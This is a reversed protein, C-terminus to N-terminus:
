FIPLTFTCLNLSLSSTDAFSKSTRHTRIDLRKLLHMRRKQECRKERWGLVKQVNSYGEPHFQWDIRTWSRNSKKVLDPLRNHQSSNELRRMTQMRRSFVQKSKDTKCVTKEKEWQQGSSLILSFWSAAQRKSLISSSALSDDKERATTERWEDDHHSSARKWWLIESEERKCISFLHEDDRRTNLAKKTSQRWLLFHSGRMSGHIGKKENFMMRECVPEPIRLRRIIVQARKERGWWKKKKYEERGEDNAHSLISQRIRDDEDDHMFVPELTHFIHSILNQRHTTTHLTQQSRRGEFSENVAHFSDRHLPIPPKPQRHGTTSDKWQINIHSKRNSSFVYLGHPTHTCGFWCWYYHLLLHYQSFLWSFPRSHSEFEM